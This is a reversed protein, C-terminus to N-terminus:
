SGGRCRADSAPRQCRWVANGSPQTLGRRPVSHRHSGIPGQRGQKAGRAGGSHDDARQGAHQQWHQWRQPSRNRRGGHGRQAPHQAPASARRSRQQEAQGPSAAVPIPCHLRLQRSTRSRLIHEDPPLDDIQRLFRRCVGAEFEPHIRGIRHRRQTSLPQLHEPVRWPHASRRRAQDSVDGARRHPNATTAARAVVVNM